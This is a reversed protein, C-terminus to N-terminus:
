DDTAVQEAGTSEPSGESGVRDWLVLLSPLVVVSAVFAYVIASGTVLGFRQLSPVLAFTLVGFGGATTVASALV